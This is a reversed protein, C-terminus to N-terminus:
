PSKAAKRSKIWAEIKATDKGFRRGAMKEFAQNAHYVHGQLKSTKMVALLDDLHATEGCEALSILIRGRSRSDLHDALEEKLKPIAKPSGSYGLAIWVTDEVEDDDAMEILRAVADETGILGLCRAVSERMQSDEDKSAEILEPVIQEERSIVKPEYRGYKAGGPYLGRLGEVVESDPRNDECSAFVISFSLCLILRYIIKM